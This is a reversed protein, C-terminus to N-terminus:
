RPCSFDAGHRPSGENEGRLTEIAHPLLDLLAELSECAGAHSGPLNLVLSRGITGAEGRSLYARIKKAGCRARVLEMLGAHRRELVSLTAEPTIDRPSLGTGGSTLILDPAPSRSAWARLQAAIKEFEDPVCAEALVDAHLRKRAMEAVAPGSSNLSPDRSCRDSVTLIAVGITM